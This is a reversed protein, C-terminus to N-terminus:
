LRSDTVARTTVFNITYRRSEPVRAIRASVVHLSTPVKRGNITRVPVSDIRDVLQPVTLRDLIATQLSGDAGRAVVACGIRRVSPNVTMYERGLPSDLRVATPDVASRETSCALTLIAFSIIAPRSEQTKM